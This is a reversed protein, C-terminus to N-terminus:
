DAPTGTPGDAPLVVVFATGGDIGDAVRVSGGHADIIAKTITLGLGTGPIAGETAAPTRYFREFLHERDEEPIGIGSDAVELVVTRDEPRPAVRIRVLGGPPTFKVANALLNDVAQAMRTADVRVPSPEVEARVEVDKAHAAARASQAADAAITALDDEAPQVTFRGSEARAVTLLDDVLRLLRDVNRRIMGTWHRQGATPEETEDELLDTAAVVSSLPTRLEHTVTAVFEDRVRELEHEETTERWTTLWGLPEQTPSFVPDTRSTFWRGDAPDHLDIEARADSVATAGAIQAEAAGRDVALELVREIRAEMAGGLPIRLDGWLERLRRNATVVEQDTGFLVVGFNSSELVAANIGALRAVRREEITRALAVAAQEGLRRGRQVDAASFPRDALRGVAVVGLVEGGHRLPLALEHRVRVSGALGDVVLCADSRGATVPEGRVLARGVAGVGPEVTGPVASAIAGTAGVQQPVAGGHGVWVAAADGGLDRVVEEVVASALDSLGSSAVLREVFRHLASVWAKEDELASVTSELDDRQADIAALQAEHTELRERLARVMVNLDRELDGVEDAAREPVTTALDGGAVRALADGLRRSPQVVSRVLSSGFALVLLVSALAGVIGTAIAFRAAGDARERARDASARQEGVFTRYATRLRRVAELSDGEGIRRRAAPLDRRALDVVPAVWLREYARIATTAAAVKQKEAPTNASRAARALLGPLARRAEVYPQLLREDGSVLFGREGTELDTVARQLRTALAIEREAAASERGADRLEVVGLALATVIVAVLAAVSLSVVGIRRALGQTV